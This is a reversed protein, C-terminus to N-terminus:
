TNVQALCITKCSDQKLDKVWLGNEMLDAGSVAHDEVWYEADARLTPYLILASTHVTKTFIQLVCRSLATDAYEIVSISDTDVLVRATAQRYFDRDKKYQEIQGIWRQRYEEPYTTLDCSFGMPGGVLFEEAFNPDVAVISDWTGNNCNFLVGTPEKCGYRPFGTAYKQVNWREICATPLRKLTGKVIEIGGLPGQNDSLWVSDVLQIQYLDMRYGGSACGTIYLNPYRQRLTEIFRRQGCTYRYFGSGTPDVPISTNFDLKIWGIQYKEIQKSITELMFSVADPNSFDLLFQRRAPIYYDPHEAVSQSNASAREPEFWLGFIMNRSRVHASLEALRGCPGSQTNEEWDGVQDGWDEGNGFWGADIMFAEIGMDAAADAQAKLSDIDLTDYCYMWSNYLIPLEKRPYAQNVYAHLKYADLDTQSKADFFILEPLDITEGEAVSLCLGTNSFGAELVVIELEQRPFKKATMQWQANPVLHFVTNRGTYRNHFGMMPTAGDCGRMGCAETRIQTNLRQWSGESEHQWASYQTYVDYDNGDLCFRSVLDRVVIPAGTRNTLHDRRRCVDGLIEFEACLRIQENQYIYTVRGQEEVREYTVDGDVIGFSGSAFFLGSIGQRGTLDVYHEFKM